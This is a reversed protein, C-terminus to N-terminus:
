PQEANRVAHEWNPFYYLASKMLEPGSEKIRKKSITGGASQIQRIRALVNDAGM